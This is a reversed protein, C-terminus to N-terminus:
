PNKVFVHAYETDVSHPAHDEDSHDKLVVKKKKSGQSSGKIHEPLVEKTTVATLTKASPKSSATQTKTRNENALNEAPPPGILPGPKKVDLREHRTFGLMNALLIRANEKKEDNLLHEQRDHEPIYVLGGETYVGDPKKYKHKTPYTNAALIADEEFPTLSNHLLRTDFAQEEDEAKEEEEQEFDNSEQDDAQLRKYTPLFAAAELPRAVQAHSYFERNVAPEPRFHEQENALERFYTGRGIGATDAHQLHQNALHRANGGTRKFSAFNEPFFMENSSDEPYPAVYAPQVLQPPPEEEMVEVPPTHRQYPEPDPESGSLMQYLQLRNRLAHKREAELEAERQQQEAQIREREREVFADLVSTGEAAPHHRDLHELESPDHRLQRDQQQLQRFISGIGNSGTHKKLPPYFLEDAYDENPPTFRVFAMASAPDIIEPNPALNACLNPPLQTHKQLSYLTGQIRCQVFPHDWGLGAGQMEELM